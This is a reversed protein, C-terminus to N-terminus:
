GTVSSRAQTAPSSSVILLISLLGDSYAMHPWSFSRGGRPSRGLGAVDAEKLGDV